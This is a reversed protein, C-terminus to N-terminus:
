CVSLIDSATGNESRGFGLCGMSKEKLLWNATNGSLNCKTSLKLSPNLIRCSSMFETLCEIVGKAMTCMCLTIIFKGEMKLVHIILSKEFRKEKVSLKTCPGCFGSVMAECFDLECPKRAHPMHLMLPVIETKLWQPFMFIPIVASWAAM